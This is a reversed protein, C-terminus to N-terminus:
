NFWKIKRKRMFHSKAQQECIFMGVSPRLLGNTQARWVQGNLVVRHTIGLNRPEEHCECLQDYLLVKPLYWNSSEM